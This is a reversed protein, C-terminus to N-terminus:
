EDPVLELLEGPTRGLVRCLKEITGLTPNYGGRSGMAELTARSLGTREALVQYTLKEGTAVRHAEMAEKLKVVIM